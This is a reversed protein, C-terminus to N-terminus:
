GGDIKAEGEKRPGVKAPALSCDFQMREHVQTASDRAKDANGLAGNVIDGDEILEKEFRRSEIDHITAIDIKTAKVPEALASGEEYDTGLFIEIVM